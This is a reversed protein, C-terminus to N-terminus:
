RAPLARDRKRRRARFAGVADAPNRFGAPAGGTNIVLNRGRAAM